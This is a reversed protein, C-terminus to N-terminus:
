VTITLTTYETSFRDYRFNFVAIICITGYQISINKAHYTYYM